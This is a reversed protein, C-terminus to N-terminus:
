SASRPLWVWEGSAKPTAVFRVDTTNSFPVFWLRSGVRVTIDASLLKAAGPFRQGGALVPCRVVHSEGHRLNVPEFPPSVDADKITVRGAKLSNVHCDLRTLRVTFQGNNSIEFPASFASEPDLKELANVSLDSRFFALSTLTAVIGVIGWLFKTWTFIWRRRPPAKTPTITAVRTSRQNAARRKMLSSNYRVPRGCVSM